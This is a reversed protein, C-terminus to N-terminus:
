TQRRQGLLTVTYPDGRNSSDKVTFKLNITSGGLGTQGCAGVTYAGGSISCQITGAEVNRALTAVSSGIAGCTTRVLHTGQEATSYTVRAITSGGDLEYKVWSMTIIKSSGPTGCNDADINLANAPAGSSDRRGVSSVDQQWYAAAIQQDKSENLRAGVKAGNLLFSIVAASLPGAILGLITIAVLLEPLTFGEENRFRRVLLWSGRSRM